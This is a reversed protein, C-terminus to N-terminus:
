LALFIGESSRASVGHGLHKHFYSRRRPAKAMVILLTARKVNSTTRYALALVRALLLCQWLQSLDFHVTVCYVRALAFDSSLRFVPFDTRDCNELNFIRIVRILDSVIAASCM